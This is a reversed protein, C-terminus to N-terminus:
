PYRCRCGGQCEKGIDMEQVFRVRLLIEGPLHACQEVRERWFGGSFGAPFVGLFRELCLDIRKADTANARISLRCRSSHLTTLASYRPYAMSPSRLPRIHRHANARQAGLQGNEAAMRQELRAPSFGHTLSAGADVVDQEDLTISGCCNASPKAAPVGTHSLGPRFYARAMTWNVSGLFELTFFPLAHFGGRAPASTPRQRSYRM